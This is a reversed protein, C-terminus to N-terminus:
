PKKPKEPKLAADWARYVSDWLTGERLRNPVKEWAAALENIVPIRDVIWGEGAIARNPNLADNELLLWPSKLNEKCWKVAARELSELTEFKNTVRQRALWLRGMEEAYQKAEKASLRRTLEAKTDFGHRIYGTYHRGGISVGWWLHKLTAIKLKM